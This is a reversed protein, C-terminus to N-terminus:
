GQGAVPKILNIQNQLVDIKSNTKTQLQRCKETLAEVARDLRDSRANAQAVLSLLKENELEIVRVKNALCAWGVKGANSLFNELLTPDDRLEQAIHNM